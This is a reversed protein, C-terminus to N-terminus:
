NSTRRFKKFAVFELSRGVTSAFFKTLRPALRKTSCEVGIVFTVIGESHSKASGCPSNLLNWERRPETDTLTCSLVKVTRSSGESRKRSDAFFRAPVHGAAVLTSERLLSLVRPVLNRM